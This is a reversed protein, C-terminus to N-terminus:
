SDFQEVFRDRCAIRLRECSAPADLRFFAKSGHDQQARYQEIAHRLAFFVSSALFFPPEGIGKSSHIARPNPADELLSVRFDQPIDSFGPIKYTSPGRTFLYGNDFWVLEELTLWGVGQVFAGEIQGIDIAPNLSSGVDMLIDTRLIHYDGTLCDLEVESVAAGYNFYAFPIGVGKEFDFGTIHPVKFFGHASLDVRDRYAQQALTALSAQPYAQRYPRLRELIKNCADLVAACNMDSQVSAATPSTNAVKDTSTDNIYVSNMGVGFARAAVQMVKTHLGQGMETGAHSVLVSGDQYLHVLAGAQNMCTFTFSMGFKTPNISLGRKRYCSSRNFEEIKELRNYYDSRQLLEEWIRRLHCNELPQGFHTPQNNEYLNLERLTVPDM